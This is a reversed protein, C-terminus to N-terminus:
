EKNITSDIPLRMTIVTGENLRSHIELEGQHREVVARVIALGIGSGPVRRGNVGRFLEECLYPIEDAPIGPGTDAVDIEIYRDNERARVEITDDSESFKIANNLLNDVAHYILASDGSVFSLPWPAEPLILNICRDSAALQGNVEDVIEQLLVALDVAEVELPHMELKTIRRLNKTLLNLREIQTKISKKANQSIPETPNSTLNELAADLATLSNKLEHDLRELFRHRDETLQRQIRSIEEEHDETMQVQLQTLAQAQEEEMRSRLKELRRQQRQKQYQYLILSITVLLGLLFLLMSFSIRTQVIPNKWISRNWWAAGFLGIILPLLVVLRRWGMKKNV